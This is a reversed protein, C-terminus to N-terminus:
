PQDHNKRRSQKFAMMEARNAAEAQKRAERECIYTVLDAKNCLKMKRTLGAADPIFAENKRLKGSAIMRELLNRSIGAKACAEKYTLWGAPPASHRITRDQFYTDATSIHWCCDHGVRVCPVGKAHLLKLAHARTTGYRVALTTTPAYDRPCIDHKETQPRPRPRPTTYTVGAINAWKQRLPEPNTTM